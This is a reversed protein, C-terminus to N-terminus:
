VISNPPCLITILSCLRRYERFRIPQRPAVRPPHTSNNGREAGAVGGSTKDQASGSVALALQVFHLLITVAQDRDDGVSGDLKQAAIRALAGFGKSLRKARESGRPPRRELFLGGIHTFNRLIICSRASPRRLGSRPASSTLPGPRARPRKHCSGSSWAWCDASNAKWRPQLLHRALSRRVGPGRAAM